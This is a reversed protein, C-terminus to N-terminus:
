IRRSSVVDIVESDRRSFSWNRMSTAMVFPYEFFDRDLILVHRRYRWAIVHASRVFEWPLVNKGPVFSPVRDIAACCM